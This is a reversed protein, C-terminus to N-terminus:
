GFVGMKSLERLTFKQGSGVLKGGAFEPWSDADITIADRMKLNRLVNGVRMVRKWRWYNRFGPVLDTKAWGGDEMKFEVRLYTGGNKSKKYPLIKIIEGTM